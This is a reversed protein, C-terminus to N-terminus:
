QAQGGRKRVRIRYISDTSIFPQGRENVGNFPGHLVPEVLVAGRTGASPFHILKDPIPWGALPLAPPGVAARLLFQQLLLVSELRKKTIIEEALELYKLQVEYTEEQILSDRAFDPYEEFLKRWAPLANPSRYLALADELRAASKQLRDAEFFLKRAKVAQPLAEVKTKSYFYPYNTMNRDREYWHIQRYAGVSEVLEPKRRDDPPLEPPPAGPGLRYREVILRAKDEQNKFEIPDLYLGNERGYAMYMEHARRWAESATGAGVRETPPVPLDPFVEGVAWGEDFWGEKELYEAFYAQARAPYNRYIITAPAKPLRYQRPDPNQKRDGINQHPPPLPDQAYSHWARATLYNDFEDDVAENAGPEIVDHIKSYNSPPALLPFQEGAPKLRSAKKDRRAGEELPLDEYRTPIKENQRLFDVVDNPTEKGLQDHLRRVLHPHKRCFEAFALLDVDETLQGQGDRKRLKKYDWEVPDICSLQFLARMTNKEDSSGIKSQYYLGQHFRLDPNYQNRRIGEAMLQIGRTIYFYRDKIQDSEVSVNYALNWSQFLWPTIFHPQLKTLSQVVLELENWQNKKQKEIAAIWLSCVAAGRSGTLTLRVLSGTLEVEGFDEERLELAKAQAEVGFGKATRLVLTATFLAIILVFYVLKRRVSQQQMPSTM